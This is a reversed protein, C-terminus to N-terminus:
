EVNTSLILTCKVPVPQCSKARHTDDRETYLAFGLITQIHFADEVAQLRVANERRKTALNNSGAKNVTTAHVKPAVDCAAGNAVVVVRTNEEEDSADGASTVRMGETVPLGAGDTPVTVKQLAAAKHSSVAIKPFACNTPVPKAGSNQPATTGNTVAGLEVESDTIVM